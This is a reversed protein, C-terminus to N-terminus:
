LPGSGEDSYGQSSEEARYGLTELHAKLAAVDSTAVEFEAYGTEGHGAVDSMYQDQITGLSGLEARVDDALGEILAEDDPGEEEEPDYDRGYSLSLYLLTSGAVNKPQNWTTGDWWNGSAVRDSYCRDCVPPLYARYGALRVSCCVCKAPNQQQWTKVTTHRVVLTQGSEKEFDQASFDEWFHVRVVEAKLAAYESASHPTRRREIEGIPRVEYVGWGEVGASRIDDATWKLLAGLVWDAAEDPSESFWVLGQDAYLRGSEMVEANEFSRPNMVFQRKGPALVDGPQLKALTGHYFPGSASAAIEM